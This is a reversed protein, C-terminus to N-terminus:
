AFAPSAPPATADHPAIRFRAPTVVMEAATALTARNIHFGACLGPLAAAAGCSHFVGHRLAIDSVLRVASAGSALIPAANAREIETQGGASAGPAQLLSCAWVLATLLGTVVTRARDRRRLM